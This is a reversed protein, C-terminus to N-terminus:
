PAAAVGRPPAEDSAFASPRGCPSAILEFTQAFTLKASHTQLVRRLRRRTTPM